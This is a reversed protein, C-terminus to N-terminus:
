PRAHALSATVTWQPPPGLNTLRYGDSHRYALNCNLPQEQGLPLGHSETPDSV